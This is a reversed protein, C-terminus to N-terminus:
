VPSCDSGGGAALARYCLRIGTVGPVAPIRVIGCPVGPGCPAADLDWERVVVRLAGAGWTERGRPM